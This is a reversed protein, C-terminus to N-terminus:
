NLRGLVNSVAQDSFRIYGLRESMEQGQHLAFGIFDVLIQRKAPDDYRDRMIFWSLAVIPYAGKAAPDVMREPELVPGVSQMVADFSEPSPRVFEGSHNEVTAMHMGTLYAFAYQVYGIAGPISKVFAAVGDNGRGRVLGGRKKLTAPWNPTMTTGISEAFAPSIASLHQTFHYSTGSGESRAVVTIPAAPLAVDPNAAKLAPDNWREIRGLFIDALVQRPLRLEAVGDLNYIVTIAGATMPLQTVGGDVQAQQAETLPIDSGIFDVRGNLLDRIGGSSGISQYDIEIDPNARYYDRFWRLYLPDPFSAGAGVLKVEDKAMAPLAVGIALLALVFAVPFGLRNNM